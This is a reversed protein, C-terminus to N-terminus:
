KEGLEDIALTLLQIEAQSGPAHMFFQWRSTTWNGEYYSLYITVAANEAPAPQGKGDLGPFLITVKAETPSVQRALRVEAPGHNRWHVEQWKKVVEPLKAKVARFAEKARDPAAPAASVTPALLALTLLCATMRTM